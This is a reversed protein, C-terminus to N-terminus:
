RNPQLDLEFNISLYLAGSTLTLSSGAVYVVDVDMDMVINNYSEIIFTKDMHPNNGVDNIMM